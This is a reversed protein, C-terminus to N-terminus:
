ETLDFEAPSQTAITLRYGDKWKSSATDGVWFAKVRRFHRSVESRFLKLLATSKPTDHASGLTGRIIVRKQWRGAPTFTIADHNALQDVLFAEGSVGDVQRLRIPQDAFSILYAACQDTQDGDAEGLNPIEVLREFSRLEPKPFRGTQAVRLAAKESVANM